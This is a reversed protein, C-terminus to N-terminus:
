KIKEEQNFIIIIPRLRKMRLLGNIFKTIGKFSQFMEEQSTVDFNPEM